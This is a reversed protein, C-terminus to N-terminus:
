LGKNRGALNIDYNHKQPKRQTNRGGGQKVQKNKSFGTFTFVSTVYSWVKMGITETWHVVTPPETNVIRAPLLLNKIKTGPFVFESLPILFLLCRQTLPRDVTYLDQWFQYLSQASNLLTTPQKSPKQSLAKSHM